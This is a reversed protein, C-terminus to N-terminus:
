SDEYRAVLERAYKRVLERLSEPEVVEATGGWAVIQRCFAFTPWVRTKWVAGGDATAKAGPYSELALRGVAPAFKVTVAVVAKAM